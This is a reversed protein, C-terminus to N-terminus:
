SKEVPTAAALLHAFSGEDLLRQMQAANYPESFLFGQATGCAQQRLYSIQAPYEVGEAILALGPSKAMAIVADALSAGFRAQDHTQIDQIFTRDIKLADVPFRHLYTLSSYGVGFDDIAM